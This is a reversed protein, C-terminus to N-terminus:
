GETPETVETTVEVAEAETAPAEASAAVAAPAGVSVAVKRVAPATASSATVTLRGDAYNASVSDVDYQAGLRVSRQWAQGDLQASVTLTRGSVEVGVAEAPVGPLDVTLTVTGQETTATVAPSRRAPVTSAASTGFSNVLQQFTRDLDVPSFTRRVLM